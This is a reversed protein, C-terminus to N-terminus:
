WKIAGMIEDKPIHLRRSLAILEGLTIDTPTKLRARATKETKGIASGIEDANAYGKLLRSLEILPLKITRTYPM